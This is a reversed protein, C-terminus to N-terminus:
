AEAAAQAVHHLWRLWRAMLDAGGSSMEALLRGASVSYKPSDRSVLDGKMALSDTDMCVKCERPRQGADIVKVSTKSVVLQRTIGIKVVENEQVTRLDRWLHAFCRAPEGFEASTLCHFLSRNRWIVYWSRVPSQEPVIKRACSGTWQSEGAQKQPHRATVLPM